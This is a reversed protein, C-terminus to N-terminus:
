GPFIRRREADLRDWDVVQPPRRDEEQSPEQPVDLMFGRRRIERVNEGTAHAVAHELSASQM